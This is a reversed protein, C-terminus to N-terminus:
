YTCLWAQQWLSGDAIPTQNYPSWHECCKLESLLILLVTSSSQMGDHHFVTRSFGIGSPVNSKAAHVTTACESVDDERAVLKAVFASVFFFFVCHNCFLARKYFLLFSYFFFLTLRVLLLIAEPPIFGSNPKALRLPLKKHVSISSDFQTSSKIWILRTLM